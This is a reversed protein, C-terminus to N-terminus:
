AAPGAWLHSAPVSGLPTSVSDAHQGQAQKVDKPQVLLTFHYLYQAGKNNCQLAAAGGQDGEILACFGKSTRLSFFWDALVPPM